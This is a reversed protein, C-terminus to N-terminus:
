LGTGRWRLFFYGMSWAIGAMPVTGAILPLQIPAGLIKVAILDAVVASMILSVMAIVASQTFVQGMYDDWGRRDVRHYLCAAIACVVVSALMVFGLLDHAAPELSPLDRPLRSLALKAASAIGMLAFILNVLVPSYLGKAPRPM